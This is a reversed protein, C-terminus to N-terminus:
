SKSGKAKLVNEIKPLTEKVIKSIAKRRIDGINKNFMIKRDEIKVHKDLYNCYELEAKLLVKNINEVIVNLGKRLYTENKSGYGFAIQNNWRYKLMTSNKIENELKHVSTISNAGAVARLGLDIGIVKSYHKQRISNQKIADYLNYATIAVGLMTSIVSTILGNVVDLILGVISVTNSSNKELVKLYSKINTKDKSRKFKSNKGITKSQIKQKRRSKKRSKYNSSKIIYSDWFMEKMNFPSIGEVIGALPDSPNWTVGEMKVLGVKKGTAKTIRRDMEWYMAILNEAIKSQASKGFKASYCRLFIDKNIAKKILEANSDSAIFIKDVAEKALLQPITVINEYGKLQNEIIVLDNFDKSIYKQKRYVINKQQVVHVLEHGLIRKGSSSGPSYEGRGFVVDSGRTFAKANISRALQNANSDIHIKVNSFDHGFRPEFFNRTERSLPQGGGQLANIQSEFNPTVQPTQGEAKAQLTEEEEEEPEVQRQVLPTIQENIPKTQLMEEEEEENQRQVQPEPMRMVDDAVRDAEQEYKDNPEGVTLKGQIFGSEFLRQVAQNGIAQHLNLIEQAPSNQKNLSNKSNEQKRFVSKDSPAKKQATKTSISM